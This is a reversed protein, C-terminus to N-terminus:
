LGKVFGVSAESVEHFKSTPSLVYQLKEGFPVAGLFFTLHCNMPSYLVPLLSKEVVNTIRYCKGEQLSRSSAISQIEAVLVVSIWHSLQQPYPKVRPAFVLKQAAMERRLETDPGNTLRALVPGLYELVVVVDVRPLPLPLPFPRAARVPPSRIAVGGKGNEVATVVFAKSLSAKLSIM